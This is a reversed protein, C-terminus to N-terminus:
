VPKPVTVQGLSSKQAIDNAFKWAITKAFEQGEPSRLIKLQDKVAQLPDDDFFDDSKGPGVKKEDTGNHMLKKSGLPRTFYAVDRRDLDTAIVDELQATKPNAQQGVLIKAKRGMNERDEDEGEFGQSAAERRAALQDATPIVHHRVHIGAFSDIMQEMERSAAPDSLAQFFELMGEMIDGGFHAAPKYFEEGQPKPGTIEVQNDTGEPMFCGRNDKTIGKDKDAVVEHLVDGKVEHSEIFKNETFRTLALDMMNPQTLSIPNVSNPDKKWADFGKLLGMGNTKFAIELDTLQPQKNSVMLNGQHVDEVGLLMAMAMQRGTQRYFAKAEAPTMQTDQDRGHEVYEVWGYPHDDKKQGGKALYKYTPMPPVNHPMDKPAIALSVEDSLHKLREQAATDWVLGALFDDTYGAIDDDSAKVQPAYQNLIERALRVREAKRRREAEAKQAAKRMLESAKDSVSGPGGVMKADVRVDRPKNVIKKEQGDAGKMVMVAVRRGGNHPDSDTIVLDSIGQLKTGGFFTAEMDQKDYAYSTVLETMNQTFQQTELDIKAQLGPYLRHLEQAGNALLEEMAKSYSKGKVGPGGMKGQDKIYGAVADALIDDVIKNLKTGLKETLSPGNPDTADIGLKDIKDRIPGLAARVQGQVLAARYPDAADVRAFAIEEDLAAIQNEIAQKQTANGLNANQQLLTQLEGKLAILENRRTEMAAQRVDKAAGPAARSGPGGLKEAKTAAKKVAGKLGFGFAEKFKNVKKGDPM